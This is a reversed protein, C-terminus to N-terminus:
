ESADTLRPLPQTPIDLHEVADRADALPFAVRFTAGGGPTDTVDVSGHLAEVISAVISLGLGSGGTERTRSNDARWFRQFIKEKIQDPVGEGHDVVEIWGMRARPDVGVRLEIPSAEATFRRANGLLNTVVQRIRNEDGLVVPVLTEAAAPPEPESPPAPPTTAAEGSGPVAPVPKSRRRLLSLTAGARTIASPGGARRKAEAEAEVSAEDPTPAPEELTTDIVAVPRMPAAARVDLAADRAVPRLDVPGIVVDRREDLRALALLDEVLLGMRIAEKEIRDMSQAIDEDGRVAGMRYLEAYGRVTVLPTRLEHSADGIFRRMQRVTADRQSIAADVRDLMANIATKLRGVETTTPEIDTMRLSFDGGAIADATSEVQGLSRFTLTVLFRTAFAGAILIVLALISYIALYNAITRNVGALPVAVMQSYLLGANPFEQVTVTARFEADGDVSRITVLQLENTKALDVPYEDPFAPQPGGRGGAIAVLGGDNGYVAVFYDTTPANDLRQATLHGDDVGLDVLPSAADTRALADVQADM